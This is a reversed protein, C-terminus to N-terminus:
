FSYFNSIRAVKKLIKLSSAKLHEEKIKDKSTLTDGDLEFEFKKYCDLVNELDIEKELIVVSESGFYKEIKFDFIKLDMPTKNLGWRAKAAEINKIAYKKQSRDLNGNKVSKQYSMFVLFDESQYKRTLKVKYFVDDVFYNITHYLIMYDEEKSIKISSEEVSCKFM